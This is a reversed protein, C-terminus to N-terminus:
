STFSHIYIAQLTNYPANTQKNAFACFFRFYYMRVVCHANQLRVAEATIPRFKFSVM